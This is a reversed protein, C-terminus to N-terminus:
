AVQRYLKELRDITKELSYRSAESRPNLDTGLLKELKQEM